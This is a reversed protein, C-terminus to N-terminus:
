RGKELSRILARLMRSVEDCSKLAPDVVKEDLYGVRCTILLQTEVERLSGSSYRLHQVYEGTRNRGWGEAINSPISISARRLQSTLGFREDTPLGRTLTYVDVVLDMAKQWVILDRYSRIHPNVNEQKQEEDM